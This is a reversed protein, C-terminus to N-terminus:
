CSTRALVSCCSRSGGARRPSSSRMASCTGSSKSFRDSDGAVLPTDADLRAELRIDKAKAGPEASEIVSQVIELLSVQKVDLRVKGAMIRNLDLLDEILRVQARANRDIV